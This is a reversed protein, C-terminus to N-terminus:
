SAALLPRLVLAPTAPRAPYTARITAKAWKMRNAASEPHDGFEGAMHAACGRIGLARLTTTVADRVQSAGPQDAPQLRSAFLAEARVNDFTTRTAYRLHHTKRTSTMM